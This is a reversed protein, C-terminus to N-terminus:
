WEVHLIEDVIGIDNYEAMYVGSWTWPNWWVCKRPYVKVIRGVRHRFTHEKGCVRCCVPEEKLRRGDPDFIRYKCYDCIWVNGWNTVPKM